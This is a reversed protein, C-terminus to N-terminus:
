ASHRRRGSRTAATAQSGPLRPVEIVISTTGHRHEWRMVNVVTSYVVLRGFILLWAFVAFLVGFTGYLESASVVMAPVVLAGVWKLVELGVAGVIAGPMLDALPASRNPLVSMSWLWLVTNLAVTFPVLAPGAWEPLVVAGLVTIGVSAVLLLGAGLMWWLGVLRDRWGRGQVQWVTNFAFQLAGSLRTAAFVLGAVGIVTAAVRSTEAQTVADVVATALQDRVGLNNVIREALRGDSAAASLYGLSAIALLLLPFLSLFAAQSISAALHPGHIEGFRAQIAHPRAFIRWRRALWGLVTEM